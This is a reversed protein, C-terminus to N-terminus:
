KRPTGAPSPKQGLRYQTGTHLHASLATDVTVRCCTPSYLRDDSQLYHHCFRRLDPHQNPSVHPFLHHGHITDGSTSLAVLLAAMTLHITLYSAPLPNPQRMM